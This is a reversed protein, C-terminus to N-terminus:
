RDGGPAQPPRRPPRWIDGPTRSIAPAGARGPVPRRGGFTSRAAAGAGPVPQRAAEGRPGDAGAPALAHRDGGGHLPVRPRERDRTRPAARGRPIAVPSKHVPRPQRFGPRPSRNSGGPLGGRPSRRHDGRLRPRRTQPLADGLGAPPPGGPSLRSLCRGLLRLTPRHSTALAAYHDSLGAFPFGRQLRRIAKQNHAIHRRVAPRITIRMEPRGGAKGVTRLASLLGSLPDALNRNLRDEFQTFTRLPFVDPTLRLRASWSAPTEPIEEAVRTFRCDPYADALQEVLPRLSEAPGDLSLRVQDGDWAMALTISRRRRDSTQHWADLAAELYQPGRVQDAPAHLHVLVRSIMGACRFRGDRRSRFLM